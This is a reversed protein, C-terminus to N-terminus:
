WPAPTKLPKYKRYKKRWEIKETCRRCLGTVPTAMIKMSKKSKPNHTFAIQPNGKTLSSCVNCVALCEIVKNQYTPVRGTPHSGVRIKKTGGQIHSM